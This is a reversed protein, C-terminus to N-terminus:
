VVVICANHLNKYPLTTYCAHLFHVGELLPLSIIKIFAFITMVLLLNADSLMGRHLKVGDWSVVTLKFVQKIFVEKSHLYGTPHWDCCVTLEPSIKEENELKFFYFYFLIFLREDEM